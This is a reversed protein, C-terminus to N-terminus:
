FFLAMNVLILNNIHSEKALRIQEKSQEAERKALRIQEKLDEEKKQQYQLFESEDFEIFILRAM